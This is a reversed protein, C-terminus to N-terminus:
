DNKEIFEGTRPNVYGKPGAEPYYDGTQPNVIGKGSKPYFDGTQSNIAGDPVIIVSKPKERHEKWDDEALIPTTVLLLITAIFVAKM